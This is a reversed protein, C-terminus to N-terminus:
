NNRAWRRAAAYTPFRRPERYTHFYPGANLSQCLQVRFAGFTDGDVTILWVADDDARVPKGRYENFGPVLAPHRGECETVNFRIISEASALIDAASM